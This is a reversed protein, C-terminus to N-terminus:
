DICQYTVTVLYRLCNGYTNYAQCYSMQGGFPQATRYGWSTCRQEATMLASEWDVVPKEFIGYSYSLDITADARSGGTAQLVKHSTCGMLMVVACLIFTRKM